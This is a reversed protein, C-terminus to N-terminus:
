KNGAARLSDLLRVERPSVWRLIDGADANDIPMGHWEKVHRLVPIAGQDLKKKVLSGPYNEDSSAIAPQEFYIEWRKAGISRIMQVKGSDVDAFINATDIELIPDDSTIGSLSTDPLTYETVNHLTRSKGPSSNESSPSPKTHHNKIQYANEDTILTFEEGAIAHEFVTDLSDYGFGSHQDLTVVTNNAISDKFCERWTVTDPPPPVFEYQEWARTVADAYRSDGQHNYTDKYLMHGGPMVPIFQTGQPNCVIKYGPPLERHDEQASEERDCGLLFIGFLLAFLLTTKM